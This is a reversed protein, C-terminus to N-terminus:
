APKIGKKNAEVSKKLLKSEKLNETKYLYYCM